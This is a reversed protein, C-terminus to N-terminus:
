ESKRHEVTIKLLRKSNEDAKVRDAAGFDEMFILGQEDCLFHIFPRKKRPINENMLKKVSSTFERGALKIKDGFRRNRLTIEGSVKDLDILNKSNNFNKTIEAKFIVNEFISNCGIKMPIEIDAAIVESSDKEIYIDGNGANIFVDKSINIKGGKDAIAAVQNVKEFSVPLNNENLYKLILRKRIACPYKSINNLINDNCCKKYIDSTQEEMFENESCIVRRSNSFSKYFGNNIQLMVPIINHRIKNRTYDDSLNTSDTIFSIGKENLYNEVQRRTIEILPRIINGRVPPIGCLGKLGTGRILNFIVTEANDSITHATAIKGDQGAYESFKSYRIDRATEELSKGSVEAAKLVEERYVKLPINLDKCFDACFKEDRDSEAGRIRHNVHVADVSIEFHERLSYLINLLCISDAGGSLAVTVRDGKKIMQYENITDIVTKIM